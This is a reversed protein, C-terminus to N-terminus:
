DMTWTMALARLLGTRESDMTRTAADKKAEEPAANLASNEKTAQIVAPAHGVRQKWQNHSAANPASNEQTAATVAHVPGFQPHHQNHSVANPASSVPTVPTVVLVLGARHWPPLPHRQPPFRRRLRSRCKSNHRKSRHKSHRKSRHKNNSVWQLCTKRM